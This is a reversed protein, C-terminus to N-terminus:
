CNLSNLLPKDIEKPKNIHKTLLFSLSLFYFSFKLTKEIKKKKKKKKQKEYFIIM